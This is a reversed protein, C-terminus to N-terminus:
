ITQVRDPNSGEVGRANLPRQVVQQNPIITVENIYECALGKQTNQIAQESLDIYLLMEFLITRTPEMGFTM